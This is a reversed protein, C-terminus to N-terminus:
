NVVGDKGHVGPTGKSTLQLIPDREWARQLDAEVQRQRSDTWAAYYKETIKVSRHGLLISVREMPVGAQLAETAFTDRFRHGHAKQVKALRFLKRLRRQWSGIVGDLTGTGTWFIHNGATRPTTDLVRKVMDPLVIYVPVATKQTYLLLRNGCIKDSTLSVVDGIRMGSYRLLLVLARLRRANDRGRPVTQEVFPDLAALIREMEDHTFPLTPHHSLRPAKLRRAPNEDVWKNEQSFRFFSRLRELHKSSTLAGYKWGARFESLMAMDFQKLIRLGHQSAFVSMRRCLLRYKRVTSAHLNRAELDALFSQWAQELTIPEPECQQAGPQGNAEWERVLDQAKQWDRLGLSKRIEQNGFNGDVWIPCQCRRYKRGVGKHPCRCLHRRYITLM